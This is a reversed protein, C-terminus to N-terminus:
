LQELVEQLSTNNAINLKKKIRRRAMNVAYVSVGLLQATEKASYGLKILLCHKIQNRSFQPFRTTIEALLQPYKSETTNTLIAVDGVKKVFQKLQNQVTILEDPKHNQRASSLNKEITKLENYKENFIEVMILFRQDRENMAKELLKKEKDKLTIIDSKSKRLHDNLVGLQRNATILSITQNAIVQELQRKKRQIYLVRWQHLSLLLFVGAFFMVIKFWNTQWWPPCITFVYEYTSSWKKQPTLTKLQLTFTGAPLNSYTVSTKTSPTNWHKDLEKIRHTFLSQHNTQKNTSHFHFTLHNINPPLSLGWPINEFKAISDFAVQQQTTDNRQRYNQTLGMLDVQDLKVKIPTQRAKLYQPHLNILHKDTGWWLDNNQDTVTSNIRFESLNSHFIWSYHEIFSNSSATQTIRNLGKDTAVWINGQTDENISQVYNSALGEKTTYYTFVKGDFRMLGSHYTGIWLQNKRDEHLSLITQGILGEKASYHTINKGDYKSIGGGSGIWINGQHDELITIISNFFMEKKYHILHKNTLKFIGHSITAIWLNGKKDEILSVVRYDKLYHFLQGKHYKILGRSTGLWLNGKSDHKISFLPYDSFLSKSENLTYQHKDFELWGITEVSAWLNGKTDKDLDTFATFDDLHFYHFNQFNCKILGNEYTGLWLNGLNDSSINLVTSGVLGVQETLQTFSKGDFRVLGQQTGLWLNGAVDNELSLINTGPLGDVQPYQVFNEGDFKILGVNNYSIWINGQKDELLALINTEPLGKNQGYHIMKKGNFKYLGTSRTAIWINGKKDEIITRIHHSHLGENITYQTINKGDYKSVGRASAWWINGQRDEIISWNYKSPANDTFTTLSDGDYKAIGQGSFGIWLNGQRDECLGRINEGPLGSAPSYHTFTAGDYYSLGRYTGLWLGGRKSRCMTYITNSPLGNKTDWIQIDNQAHKQTAPPPLHVQSTQSLLQKKGQLPVPIGTPITDKKVTTLIYREQKKHPDNKEKTTLVIPKNIRVTKLNQIIKTTVTNPLLEGKFEELPKVQGKLPLPLGTKITDQKQTIIPLISDKTIIHHTYGPSLNIPRTPPQTYPLPPSLLANSSKKQCGVFITTIVALLLLKM